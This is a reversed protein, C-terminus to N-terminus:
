PQSSGSVGLRFDFILNLQERLRDDRQIIQAGDWVQLPRLEDTLVYRHARGEPFFVEKKRMFDHNKAARNEKQSTLVANGLKQALRQRERQDPIQEVWQSADSTNRPLVHEVTVDPEPSPTLQGSLQDNIRLLLMRCVQKQRAHFDSRLAQEISKLERQTLELHAQLHSALEDAAHQERLTRTVKAFRSQRKDRGISLIQLGFALRDLRKSFWRTLDLDDGYTQLFYLACPLWDSHRLWTLYVLRARVEDDEAVDPHAAGRIRQLATVSPALIQTIYNVPGGVEAALELNDAVVQKSRSKGYMTRIHSFIDEFRQEGATRELQDWLLRVDAPIAADAENLLEARLIQARNLELGRHNFTLYIRYGYELENTTIVIFCCAHLLYDALALRSEPTMELLETLFQARNDNIRQCAESEDDAEADHTIADAWLLNANFWDNDHARLYLRMLATTPEGSSRVAADLQAAMAHAGDHNLLDRLLCLVVCVTALRQQGDIIEYARDEPLIFPRDWAESPQWTRDLLVIPGLPYLGGPQDPSPPMANRIDDLLKGAENWTWSYPRQFSPTTFIRDHALLQAVNMTQSFFSEIM